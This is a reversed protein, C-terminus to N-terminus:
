FITVCLIHMLYLMQNVFFLAKAHNAVKSLEGGKIKNRNNFIPVKHNLYLLRVFCIHIYLAHIQFRQAELYDFM